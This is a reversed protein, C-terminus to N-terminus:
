QGFRAGGDALFALEQASSERRLVENRHPFRGFEKILDYHQQAYNASNNLVETYAEPGGKALVSFLALGLEQGALLEVHQLPMYLFVRQLPHLRQDWERDLAIDLLDLAYVDYAFAEASGRFCNRSFQDFVLVAALLDEPKEILEADMLQLPEFLNAFRTHIEADLAEGGGYWRQNQMSLTAHDTLSDGFWFRLIDDTPISFVEQKM